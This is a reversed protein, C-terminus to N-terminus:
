KKKYNYYNKLLIMKNKKKKDFIKEDHMFIQLKLNQKKKNLIEKLEKNKQEVEKEKKQKIINKIYNVQKKFYNDNKHNYILQHIKYFYLNNIIKISTYVIDNSYINKYNRNINKYLIDNYKYITFDLFDIFDLSTEGGLVDFFFRCNFYLYYEMYILTYYYEDDIDYELYKADFENVDTYIIDFQYVLDTEMNLLYPLKYLFIILFLFLQNCCFLILLLFNFYIIRYYNFQM